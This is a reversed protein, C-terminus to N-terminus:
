AAGGAETRLLGLAYALAYLSGFIWSPLITMLIEETGVLWHVATSTAVLLVVTVGVARLLRLWRHARGRFLGEVMSTMALTVAASYLGQTASARLMMAPDHMRNAWAAWAGYFVLAVLASFASRLAPSALWRPRPISNTHSRTM